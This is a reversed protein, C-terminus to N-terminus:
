EKTDTKNSDKNSHLKREKVICGTAYENRTDNRTASDTRM